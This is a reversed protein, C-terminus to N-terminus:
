IWGFGRWMAVLPIATVILYALLLAGDGPALRFLHRMRPKARRTGGSDTGQTPPPVARDLRKRLLGVEVKVAAVESELRAIRAEMSTEASAQEAGM